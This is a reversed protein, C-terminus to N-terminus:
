LQQQCVLLSATMPSPFLLYGEALGFFPYPITVISLDCINGRQIKGKPQENGDGACLLEKYDRGPM